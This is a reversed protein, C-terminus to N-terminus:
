AVVEGGRMIPTWMHPEDNINGTTIVYGCTACELIAGDPPSDFWVLPGDCRETPQQDTNM